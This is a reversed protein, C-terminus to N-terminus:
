SRPSRAACDRSSHRSSSSPARIEQLGKVEEGPRPAFTADPEYLAIAADVDRSNLATAFLEIIQEPRDATM